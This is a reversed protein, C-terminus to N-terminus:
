QLAGRSANARESDDPGRELAAAMVFGILLWVTLAVKPNWLTYDVLSHAAIGALAILVAMDLPRFRRERCAARVREGAAWVLALGAGAVLLGGRLLMFLYLSDAGTGIVQVSTGLGVGWIPSAKLSDIAQSYVLERHQVTADQGLSRLTDV